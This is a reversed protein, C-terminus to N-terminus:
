YKCFTYNFHMKLQRPTNHVSIDTLFSTINVQLTQLDPSYHTYQHALQLKVRVSALQNALRKHIDTLFKINGNFNRIM